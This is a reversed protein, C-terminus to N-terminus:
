EKKRPDTTLKGDDWLAALIVRARRKADLRRGTSKHDDGGAVDPWGIAALWNAAQPDIDEPRTM